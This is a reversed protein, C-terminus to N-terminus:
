FYHFWTLRRLTLNRLVHAKKAVARARIHRQMDVVCSFHVLLYNLPHPLTAPLHLVFSRCQAGAPTHVDVQHVGEFYEAAPLRGGSIILVSTM